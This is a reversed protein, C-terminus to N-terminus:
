IALSHRDDEQWYSDFRTCLTRVFARGLDTCRFGDSIKEVLGDRDASVLQDAEKGLPASAPGFERELAARSFSFDCMLRQIICARMRDELSLAFGRVTAFTNEKIRRAYDGAAASNQVYGQPLHGIASAGLGLLAASDDITYGQFNRRVTGATLSDHPLAFHDIGIQRYGAGTVIGALEKSRIFRDVPGPLEAANIMKQHRARGPVHAYGFIAIRDPGLLLVKDITRRLSEPSQRPLGYVLDINVSTVGHVRFWYIANRTMKESQIRNLACHVAPDFDQVGISVRTVGASAFARVTEETLDRPDAEVAFEAAAGIRFKQRLKAALREIQAPTLISPSGGGWHIQTVAAGPPLLGSVSGIEAELMMLYREVPEYRQIAKTNCACYWCLQRCFPIHLYLSVRAGPPLAALWAAYHDPGINSSFNPATPYSTYRPAPKAYKRIIEANVDLGWDLAAKPPPSIKLPRIQL